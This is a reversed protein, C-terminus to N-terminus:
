DAAANLAGLPPVHSGRSYAFARTFEAGLLFIQASYYVWLLLVVLSGAAGYAGSFSSRGLYFGILSKGVTFLLATVVAGIWVDRWTITERPVYKYIMAFLLVTMVFSLVLDLIPLTIALGPLRAQMWGGFAALVASAILSVLLLFGVGLVMGFSLLRRRVMGWWGSEPKRTSGWIVDLAHQLEGFVSTAGIILTVVGIVAAMGKKNSYQASALVSRVADAGANGTLDRLQALLETEATHPGFFYGALSLAIILIPAVSFLTYFALAAGMSSASHDVWGTVSKVFIGGLDRFKERLSVNRVCNEEPGKSQRM